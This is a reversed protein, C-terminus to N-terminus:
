EQCVLDFVTAKMRLYRKDAESTTGAQFDDANSNSLGCDIAM